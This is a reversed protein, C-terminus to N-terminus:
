GLFNVVAFHLVVSAFIFDGFAREPSVQPFAATNATNTQSRLGACLVFQGITAIFGALFANFPYNGVILCYMFQLVGTAILFAMFMDILKLQQPTSKLYSSWLDNVIQAYYNTALRKSQLQKITASTDEKKPTALHVTKRPAM